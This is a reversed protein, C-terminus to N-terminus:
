KFGLGPPLAVSTDNPNGWVSKRPGTDAAHAERKVAPATAVAAPKRATSVPAAAPAAAAAARPSHTPTKEQRVLPLGKRPNTPDSLASLISLIDDTSSNTDLVSPNKSATKPTAAAAAAAHQIAAVPAPVHVATHKKAAPAPAPAPAPASRYVTHPINCATAIEVALEKSCNTAAVLEQVFTAHPADYPFAAVALAVHEAGLGMGILGKAVTVKNAISVRSAPTAPVSAAPPVHAAVPAPAAAIHAVPVHAHAVPAAVTEVEATATAATKKARVKKASSIFGADADEVPSVAPVPAASTTHGKAAQAGHPANKPSVVSPTTHGFSGFTIPVPAAAAAPAPAGVAKKLMSLIDDTSMDSNAVPPKGHATQGKAGKQNATKPSPVQPPIVNSHVFTTVAPPPASAHTHVVPAAANSTSLLVRARQNDLEFQAQDAAEAAAQEKALKQRHRKLASKSMTAELQQNVMDPTHGPVLRGVYTPAPVFPESAVAASESSDTEASAVAPTPAPARKPPVLDAATAVHFTDPAFENQVLIEEIMKQAGEVDVQKGKVVVLGRVRDIDFRISHAEQISRVTAGKAGILASHAQHPVVLYLTFNKEKEEAIYAEIITRAKQVAEPTGQVTVTNSKADIDVTQAGSDEVIKLKTAGGKGILGGIYDSDVTTSWFQDALEAIKAELITKAANASASDSATIDFVLDKRNVNMNAGSEKQMANIVAGNKGVLSSFLHGPVPVSINREAWDAAIKNILNKANTLSAHELQGFAAGASNNCVSIDLACNKIDLTYSIGCEELFETYVSTRTFTFLLKKSAVTISTFFNTAHHAMMDRVASRASDIAALSASTILVKNRKANLVLKCGNSTGISTLREDVKATNVAYFAPPISIQGSFASDLLEMFLSRAIEVMAISGRFFIKKEDRKVDVDGGNFMENITSIHKDAIPDNLGKFTNVELVVIHRIQDIFALIGARCATNVAPDPGRIRVQDSAKLTDIRVGPFESELKKLNAGAKGILAAFPFKEGVPLVVSNASQGTFVDNLAAKASAIDETTGRIIMTDDKSNIYIDVNFKNEVQKRLSDQDGQGAQSLALADDHSISVLESENAVLFDNLLQQGQRVAGTEGRLTITEATANMDVYLALTQLAARCEVGRAGKLAIMATNNFPTAESYNAEVVREIAHRAGERETFNASNINITGDGAGIEIQVDPFQARIGKLVSGGKGIILPVLTPDINLITMQSMYAVILSSIHAQALAVKSSTGKIVLEEMENKPAGDVKETKTWDLRVELNRQLDRIISGGPGVVAAMMTARPIQRKAEIERNDLFLQSLFEAVQEVNEKLGTVAVKHTDRDIDVQVHYDEGIQRITGGSKGIIAGLSSEDVQVEKRYCQLAAIEAKVANIADQHGTIKCSLKAKSIDIRVNYLAQWEMLLQAKDILLVAIQTEKLAFEDFVTAITNQLAQTAAAISDSTGIIRINGTNRDLDLEVNFQDELHKLNAGAKGVVNGRREEPCPIFAESIDAASCNSKKATRLKSVGTKLDTLNQNRSKLLELASTREAKLQDVVDQRQSYEAYAKRDKKAQAIDYMFKREAENNHSSHAHKYEWDQIMTTLETDTHRPRKGMISIQSKIKADLNNVFERLEKVEATTQELRASVLALFDMPLADTAASATM